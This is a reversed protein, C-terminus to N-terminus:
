RVAKESKRKENESHGEYGTEVKLRISRGKSDIGSIIHSNSTGRNLSRTTKGAKGFERTTENHYGRTVQRTSKESKEKREHKWRSKGKKGNEDKGKGFTGHEWESALSSWMQDLLQIRVGQSDRKTKCPKDKSKAQQTHRRKSAFQSGMGFVSPKRSSEKNLKYNVNPSRYSRLARRECEIHEDGIQRSPYGSKSKKRKM